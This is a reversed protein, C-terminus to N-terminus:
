NINHGMNKVNVYRSPDISASLGGAFSDNEDYFDLDFGQKENSFYKLYIVIRATVRKEQRAGVEGRPISIVKIVTLNRLNNQHIEVNKLHGSKYGINKVLFKCELLVEVHDKTYKTDIKELVPPPDIIVKVKSKFLNTNYLFYGSVLTLIIPVVIYQFIKEKLIYM